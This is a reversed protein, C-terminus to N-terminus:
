LVGPSLCCGLSACVPICVLRRGPVPVHCQHNHLPGQLAEDLLILICASHLFYLDVAFPYIQVRPSHKIYIFCVVHILYKTKSISATGSTFFRFGSILM